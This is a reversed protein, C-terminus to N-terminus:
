APCLGSRQSDVSRGEVVGAVLSRQKDNLPREHGGTVRQRFPNIARPQGLQSSLALSM